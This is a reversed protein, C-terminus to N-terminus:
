HFGVGRSTIDMETSSTVDMETSSTVDMDTSSTVGMGAGNVNTETYNTYESYQGFLTVFWLLDCSISMYINNKSPVFVIFM